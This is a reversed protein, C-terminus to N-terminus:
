PLRNAQGSGTGSFTGASPTDIKGAAAGKMQVNMGNMTGAGSYTGGGAVNAGWNGGPGDWRKVEFGASLGHSGSLPVAPGTTAPTGVYDGGVKDTAWIRPNAGTRYAFFTVDNMYVNQLNNVPGASQTLSTKGIEICPINLATLKERGQVTTALAMFSATDM